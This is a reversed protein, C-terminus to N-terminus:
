QKNVEIVVVGLKKNLGMIPTAIKFSTSDSETLQNNTKYFSSTAILGEEKKNTSLEITSNDANVYQLKEIQSSKIFDYFFLEVQEKNERQLESRVAWSFTKATLEMGAINLSDMKLEYNNTIETKQQDFDSKLNSIQIRSWIFMAILLLLLVVKVIHKLMFDKVVKLKSKKLEPSKVESTETIEKKSVKEAM